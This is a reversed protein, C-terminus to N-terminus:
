ASHILSQLSFLLVVTIARDSRLRFGTHVSCWKRATWGDTRRMVLVYDTLRVRVRVGSESVRGTLSALDICNTVSSFMPAVAIPLAPPRLRRIPLTEWEPWKRCGLNAGELISALPLISPHVPHCRGRGGHVRESILLSM